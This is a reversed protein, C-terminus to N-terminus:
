FFFSVCLVCLSFFFSSFRWATEETKRKNRKTHTKNKNNDSELSNDIKKETPNDTGKPKKFLPRFLKRPQSFFFIPFNTFPKKRYKKFFLFSFFHILHYRTRTKKKKKKTVTRNKSGIATKRKKKKSKNKPPLATAAGNELFVTSKLSLFWFGLITSNIKWLFSFSWRCWSCCSRKKGDRKKKWEFFFSRRSCLVIIFSRKKQDSFGERFFKESEALFFVM